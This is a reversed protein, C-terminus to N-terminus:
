NANRQEILHVV